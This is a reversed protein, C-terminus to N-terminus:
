HCIWMGRNQLVFDIEVLNRISKIYNKDTKDVTIVFWNSFRTPRVETVGQLAGLFFKGSEKLRGKDLGVVYEAKGDSDIFGSAELKKLEAETYYKFFLTAKKGVYQLVGSYGIAFMFLPFLIIVMWQKPRPQIM